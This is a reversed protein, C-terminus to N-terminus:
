EGLLGQAKDARAAVIYSSYIFLFTLTSVVLYGTLIWILMAKSKRDFYIFPNQM